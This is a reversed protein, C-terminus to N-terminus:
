KKQAIIIKKVKDYSYGLEGIKKSDEIIDVSNIKKENLLEFFRDYEMVKNNVIIVTQEKQRKMAEKLKLSNDYYEYSKNHDVIPGSNDLPKITKKSCASVILCSLIILSNKM